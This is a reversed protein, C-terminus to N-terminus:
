SKEDKKLMEIYGSESLIYDVFQSFSLEDLKVRFDIIMNKFDILKNVASKGLIENSRDIAEFLDLSEAIAFDVLKDITVDSAFVQKNAM